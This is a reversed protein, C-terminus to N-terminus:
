LLQLVTKSPLVNEDEIGFTTSLYSEDIHLPEISSICESEVNM